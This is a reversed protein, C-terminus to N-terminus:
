APPPVSYHLHVIRWGQSTRQYGHSEWGKSTIPQGNALKATFTWDFVAWAADGAVRIAIQSPQLNRETFAKQLFNVYVGDRVGDWGQFRGFPTVVLIDPSQLWVESGLKVDAAKVSEFYKELVQQVSRKDQDVDPARTSCAPFWLSITLAALLTMWRDTMDPGGFTVFRSKQQGRKSRVSNFIGFGNRWAHSIGNSRPARIM